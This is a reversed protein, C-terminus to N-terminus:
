AGGHHVVASVRPFLWDHPTNELMYINEPTNDKDGLKGWGKSVLARVGALEVAKFIMKTFRDPDDVVISGFGIYVPKEGADLFEVLDKPPKFNSALDLFVFGGIDIEPGWDKPKPVLTPSWMYTYPVKMRFLAGPAWLSSVPELGLTKVRFKNVLDGLGQWTMMEVLPYSMFNVYNADINSKSRKINALPHPFAQTPSYPFTFMMHLPIGLREAIHVHAFSPPNAIIADAIFPFKTGMMKLNAKDPEDDTANVCSRWFGDFMEAMAARRRGIEGTKVTELSPILGPNKVMFAMLESPDGGVSFFELGTDKEVFDRFAPHTAIRVRHGYSQLVKGVQLFPQIDGRSGIVMIVIRLRPRAATEHISAGISPATHVGHKGNVRKERAEQDALDRLREEEELEREEKSKKHTHRSPIDLHHAISQGLAKAIYGNNATENISINLRGDRRSVRGKSKYHDNGVAFKDYAPERARNPAKKGEKERGNAPANAANHRKNKRRKAKAVHEDESSSSSSSDSSSASDFNYSYPARGQSAGTSRRPRNGDLSSKLQPKPRETQWKRDLSPRSNQVPPALDIAPAGGPQRQPDERASTSDTKQRPIHSQDFYAPGNETSVRSTTTAGDAASSRFSRVSSPPTLRAIDFQTSPPVITPIIPSGTADTLLTPSTHGLGTTYAM